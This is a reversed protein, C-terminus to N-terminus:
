APSSSDGIVPAITCFGSWALAAPPYSELMGGVTEKAKGILQLTASAVDEMKEQRKDVELSHQTIRTMLELREKGSGGALMNDPAEAPALKDTTSQTLIGEYDEVLESTASAEKLETYADDWLGLSIEVQEPVTETLPALTLHRLRRQRVETGVAETEAAETGAAEAENSPPKDVGSDTKDPKAGHQELFTETLPALALHRLRRQRVETGVAETEVAETGAAEAENSSPKDVGLIQRTQSPGRRCPAQSTQRWYWTSTEQLLWRDQRELGQAKDEELRERWRTPWKERSRNSAEGNEALAGGSFSPILIGRKTSYYLLFLRQACPCGLDSPFFRFPKRWWVPKKLTPLRRSVSRGGKM